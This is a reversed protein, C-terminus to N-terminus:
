KNELRCSYPCKSRTHTLPGSYRKIIHRFGETINNYTM